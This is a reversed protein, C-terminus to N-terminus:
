CFDSDVELYQGAEVHISFSGQHKLFYQLILWKGWCYLQWSFGSNVITHKVSQFAHFIFYSLHCVMYSPLAQLPGAEPRRTFPEELLGRKVM